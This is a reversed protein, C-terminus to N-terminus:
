RSLSFLLNFATAAWFRPRYRAKSEFAELTLNVSQKGLFVAFFRSASIFRLFCYCFSDAQAKVSWDISTTFFLHVQPSPLYYVFAADIGLTQKFFEGTNSTRLPAIVISTPSECPFKHDWKSIVMLHFSIRKWQKSQWTVSLTKYAFESWSAPMIYISYNQKNRQKRNSDSHFFYKVYNLSLALTKKQASQRDSKKKRRRCHFNSKPDDSAQTLVKRFCFTRFVSFKSAWLCSETISHPIIIAFVKCVESLSAKQEGSFTKTSCFMKSSAILWCDDAPM